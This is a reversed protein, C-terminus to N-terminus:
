RATSALLRLEAESARFEGPLYHRQEDGDIRVAVRSEMDFSIAAVEDYASADSGLSYILSHDTVPQARPWLWQGAERMCGLWAEVVEPYVTVYPEPSYPDNDSVERSRVLVIAGISAQIISFDGESVEYPSSGGIAGFEAILEWAVAAVPAVFMAPGFTRSTIAISTPEGSAPDTALTLFADGQHGIAMFATTCGASVGPPPAAHPLPTGDPQGLYLANLDDRVWTAVASAGPMAPCNRQWQEVLPNAAPQSPPPAGQGAFQSPPSHVPRQDGRDARSSRAAREDELLARTPVCATGFACFLLVASMLMRTRSLKQDAPVTLLWTALHPFSGPLANELAQVLSTDPKMLFLRAPWKLESVFATVSRRGHRAVTSGVRAELTDAVLFSGGLAGTVVILGLNSHAGATFVFTGALLPLAGFMLLEISLPAVLDPVSWHGQTGRLCSNLLQVVGLLLLAAAAVRQFAHPDKAIGALAAGFTLLIGAFSSQLKPRAIRPPVRVLQQDTQTPSEIAPM